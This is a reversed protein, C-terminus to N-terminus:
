GRRGGLRLQKARQQTMAALTLAIVAAGADGEVVPQPNPPDDIILLDPARQGEM